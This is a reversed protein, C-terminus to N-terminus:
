QSTICSHTLRVARTPTGVTCPIFSAHSSSCHDLLYNEALFTLDQTFYTSASDNKESTHIFAHAGSKDKSRVRPSKGQYWSHKDSFDWDQTKYEHLFSARSSTQKLIQTHLVTQSTNCPWIISIWNQWSNRLGLLSFISKRRSTLFLWRFSSPSITNLLTCRERMLQIATELLVQKHLLSFHMILYIRLSSEAENWSACICQIM